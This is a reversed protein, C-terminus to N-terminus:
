RVMADDSAAVVWGTGRQSDVLVLSCREVTLRGPLRAVVGFLLRDTDGSAAFTRTVDLLAALDQTQRLMEDRDRRARSLARLLPPLDAAAYPARVFGDLGDALPAAGDQPLVGVLPGYCQRALAILEERDRAGLDIVAAVMGSAGPDGELLLGSARLADRLPENVDTLGLLAVTLPKQVGPGEAGGVVSCLGARWPVSFGPPFGGTSS